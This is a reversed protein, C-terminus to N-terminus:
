EAYTPLTLAFTTGPGDHSEVWIRGGHLEVIKRCIALGIGNGSYSGKGHLRKFINFVVHQSAAPIGIGNDIIRLHLLGGRAHAQVRVHPAVGERRYKLANGLLNQFLQGLRSPNGPVAPLSPLEVRAGTALIEGQLNEIATGLVESLEVRVFPRRDQGVQSFSLLDDILTQMRLTGAVSRELYSRGKEDLQDSHRRQLLSLYSSVTRVPSKLDHSALTAFQRLEANSSELEANSRTLQETREAIRQELARTAQVLTAVSRLVWVSLPARGGMHLRTASALYPGSPLTLELGHVEGLTMLEPTARAIAEPAHLLQGLRRHKLHLLGLAREAPANALVVRGDDDCLLMPDPAGAFLDQFRLETTEQASTHTPQSRASLQLETLEEQQLLTAILQKRLLHLLPPPTVLSAPVRSELLVVGLIRGDARLPWALLSRTGSRRLWDDGQLRPDSSCAGSQLPRQTALVVRVAAASVPSSDTVPEQHTTLGEPGHRLQLVPGEPQCLVLACGQALSALTFAHLLNGLVGKADQPAVGEARRPAPSTEETWAAQARREVSRYSEAIQARGSAGHFSAARSAALLVWAPGLERAGQISADFSGLASLQQGQARQLEARLLLAALSWGASDLWRQDAEAQAISEAGPRGMLRAIGRLTHLLPAIASPGLLGWAETAADARIRAGLPDDALVALWLASAELLARTEIDTAAAALLDSETFGADDLRGPRTKGALARCLQRLVQLRDLAGLHQLRRAQELDQECRQEVEALPQGAQLALLARPVAFVLADHHRGLTELRSIAASLRELVQPASHVQAELRAALVAQVHPVWPDDPDVAFALSRADEGLQLGLKPSGSLSHGLAVALMGVATEATPGEQVALACLQGAAWRVLAPDQYWGLQIMRALLANRVKALQGLEPPQTILRSLQPPSPVKPQQEPSLEFEALASLGVQRAEALKGSTLLTHVRIEALVARELAGQAHATAQELMRQARAQDGSLHATVAAEKYLELRNRASWHSPAAALAAATYAFSADYASGHRARRAAEVNLHAREQREADTEQPGASLNLHDVGVFFHEVDGKELHLRAIRRHTQLRLAQPLRERAVQQLEQDAMRWSRGNLYILRAEAAAELFPRLEAMSSGSVRALAQIEGEPGMCSAQGILTAAAPPLDALELLGLKEPVLRDDIQALRKVDWTWSGQWLDQRLAGSSHLQRLARLAKGPLGGSARLLVSALARAEGDELDLHQRCLLLLQQETMPSLRIRQPRRSELAQLARDLPDGALVAERQYTLLLLLGSHRPPSALSELLRVSAQDLWQAEELVLVLPAGPRCLAQLVRRVLNALAQEGSPEGLARPADLGLLDELEPVMRLLLGADPGIAERVAQLNEAANNGEMASHIGMRLAALWPGYPGGDRLPSCRGIAVVGRRAPPMATLQRVLPYKGAGPGGKLYVVSMDGIDAAALARALTERAESHHLSALEPPLGPARLKAVQLAVAAASEPRGEPAPHLLAELLHHVADPLHPALSRLSPAHIGDIPPGVGVLSCWMLVGLGHLDTKPGVERGSGPQQEPALHWQPGDRRPQPTEGIRAGSSLDVLVPQDARLVVNEPHLDLHLVQAQHLTALTGALRQVLRLTEGLEMPGEGLRAALNRPGLDELVLLGLEPRWDVVEVVGPGQARTLLAGERQLRPAAHGQAQKIVVARDDARTRGRMLLSRHQGAFPRLDRYASLPEVAALTASAALSYM